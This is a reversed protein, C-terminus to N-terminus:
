LSDTWLEYKVVGIEKVLWIHAPYETPILKGDYNNSGIKSIATYQFKDANYTKGELSFNDKGEYIFDTNPIFINIGNFDKLVSTNEPLDISINEKRKRLIISEPKVSMIEIIDAIKNPPSLYKETLDGLYTWKLGVKIEPLYQKFFEGNVKQGIKLKFWNNEEIEKSVTSNVTKNNNTNVPVNLSCSSILLNILLLIKFNLKM